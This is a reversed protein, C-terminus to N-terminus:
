NTFHNLIQKKMTNLNIRFKIQIRYTYLNIISIFKKMLGIIKRYTRVILQKVQILQKLLNLNKKRKKYFSYNTDNADVRGKKLNKKTLLEELDKIYIAKDEVSNTPIKLVINANSQTVFKSLNHKNDKIGTYKEKGSNLRYSNVKTDVQVQGTSFKLGINYIKTLFKKMQELLEIFINIRWKKRLEKNIPKWFSPQKKINGFPLDTLFGWATLYCYHFKKKEFITSNPKPKHWPKLHFPYIIKIQLGDRLWQEPLEEKSVETGDYTCRIHVEKNWEYWDETWETKQFLLFRNINKLLILLPLVFYKRFHSQIILLWSRGWQALPFDWRNAIALRDAKTKQFPSIKEKSFFNRKQSTNRVSPETSQYLNQIPSYTRSFTSKEAIRLFFPSNVKLQFINWVLTKRRRARMSGKVLKRRFDSQQSFRRIIKRRKDKGKILYGLNKVKRQRIDTVGIAIVDFKDNKLDSTWRPIEKEMERFLLKKDNGLIKTVLFPIIKVRNKDGVFLNKWYNKATNWEDIELYNFYLNKQRPSLNLILEWNINFKRTGKKRINGIPLNGSSKQNLDKKPDIDFFITQTQHPDIKVKESKSVLLSLIRRADRTLPEWPLIFNKYDLNKWQNSIWYKLKNNKGIFFQSKQTRKSKDFRETFFWNSKSIIMEENCQGVLLPDYFKSFNEGKFNSLGTKKEIVETIDYGNDLIQAKNQIKTYIIKRKETKNDVWEQFFEPSFPIELYSFFKSFSKGFVAVSPLHTFSLRPQGDSLCSNFFYQSVRRKIFSKNSFRSNEIYRFPRKWRGYDFFISPWSKQSFISNDNKISNFQLHDIIKKTIFPVPIRGLHLLSFSLIIISFTRHIIRKVLIYVIPSDSEIRSLLLKSLTIFFYQGSFWGLITSIVFLINTSHRFLFLNLSRALVPSPLLIPNLLQFILSDFFLKYVQINRFSTIPKLSQYNLLDKIRYWYFFIYSLGILSVIHPKLLIVYIPSYYISLFIILQGIVLGSIAATGSFNGELLFARMSLLQSPNIPLTTLFGYYLGFLVFTSSFNISSLIPIWLISFFLPSSTIM